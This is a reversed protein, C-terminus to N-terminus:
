KIRIFSRLLIFIASSVTSIEYKNQHPTEVDEEKSGSKSFQCKTQNELPVLIKLYIEEGVVTDIKHPIVTGNAITLNFMKMYNPEYKRVCYVSILIFQVIILQIKFM